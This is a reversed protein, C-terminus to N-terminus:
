DQRPGYRMVVADERGQVSPYYGKRIGVQQLQCQQYLAIASHNSRRVELFLSEVQQSSLQEILAKLLQRAIGQRQFDAAVAISLLDAVGGGYSAILYGCVVRRASSLPSPRDGASVAKDVEVVESIWMWHQGTLAKQLRSSNWPSSFLQQELQEVVEIDTALMPRILM